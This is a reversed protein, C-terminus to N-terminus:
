SKVILISDPSSTNDLIFVPGPFKALFLFRLAQFIQWSSYVQFYKDGM